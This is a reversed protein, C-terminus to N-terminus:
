DLYAHHQLTYKGGSTSPRLGLYRQARKFSQAMVKNKEVREQKKKEKQVKSKNRQADWLDEMLKKFDELTRGDIPPACREGFARYSVPPARGVMNDFQERSNSRGLYRPLCHPHDPFRAVLGAERQQNTIRLSLKLTSNIEQLLTEVQQELILILPKM